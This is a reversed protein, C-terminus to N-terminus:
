LGLFRAFVNPLPLVILILLAISVIGLIDRQNNLETVDNLAPEDILPIFLLIVAWLFFGPQVLSLLLLLLRSIQGIIVANRQGFMAHVIHGGDLQGVPMLNLATVVVGLLGAFAVPHLDISTKATLEAGLVLKSILALLISYRPNLYNISDSSLLGAQETIPVIKSNALGWILIPLTTIFGAIPGAISVDFLAKRNPVPSRMQIFAGFTGLFFPMPIFYPLTARIKYRRATIYHGFEHIGLITMLALSYPLGQLLASPNAQLQQVGVGAIRTGVLTTTFLTAFLLGLAFGPRTLNESGRQQYKILQTNPVLVFIPKGNFGEQLIVLFRNGFQTEINEKIQQYAATADSRLQGKCIVAQPRYEIDQLYYLSWPFCNRLQTEESPQIPRVSVAPEATPNIASQSTPTLKDSSTAETPRRGIQFLVWYLIPSIILPAIMLARPPQVTIGYVASWVTWLLAPAMLVLWLLWVPTRTIQAVSRQVMLYTIIGLLLLFWFTM